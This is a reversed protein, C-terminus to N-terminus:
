SSVPLLFDKASVVLKALFQAPAPLLKIANLSTLIEFNDRFLDVLQNVTVM